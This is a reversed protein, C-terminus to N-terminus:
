EEPKEPEDPIRARALEEAYETFDDIIWENEPV